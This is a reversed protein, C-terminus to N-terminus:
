QIVGADFDRFGAGTIVTGAPRRVGPESIEFDTNLVENTKKCRATEM